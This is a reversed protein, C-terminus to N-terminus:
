EEEGEPLAPERWDPTTKRELFTEERAELIAAQKVKEAERRAGRITEDARVRTAALSRSGLRSNLFWGLGGGGVLAVAAVLVLTVDNM